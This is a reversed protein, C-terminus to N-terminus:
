PQAELDFMPEMMNETFNPCDCVACTYIEDGIFIDDVIHLVRSM